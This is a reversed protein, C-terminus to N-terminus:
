FSVRRRPTLRLHLLLLRRAQMAPRTQSSLRVTLILAPRPRRAKLTSAMLFNLLVQLKRRALFLSVLRTKPSITRILLVLTTLQRLIPLLHRPPPALM